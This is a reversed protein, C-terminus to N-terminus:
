KRGLKLIRLFFVDVSMHQWKERIEVYFKHEVCAANERIAKERM